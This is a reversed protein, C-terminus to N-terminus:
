ICLGQVELCNNYSAVSAGNFLVSVNTNSSFVISATNTGDTIRMEGATYCATATPLTLPTTTSVTVWTNICTPNIKGTMQIQTTNGSYAYSMKFGDYGANIAKGNTTGSISGTLKANGSTIENSTYVFDSYEITANALTLNTNTSTSAYTINVAATIKTPASTLGEYTIRVTGNWTETGEKCNTYTITGTYNEPKSDSGSWQSAERRTGGGTCNTTTDKTGATQIGTNRKISEITNSLLSILFPRRINKSDIDATGIYTPEVILSGSTIVAGGVSASNAGTLASSPAPPNPTDSGGGGSGCSATILLLATLIISYIKPLSKKM